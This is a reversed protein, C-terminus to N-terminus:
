PLSKYSVPSVPLSTGQVYLSLEDAFSDAAFASALLGRAYHRDPDDRPVPEAAVAHRRNAPSKNGSEAMKKIKYDNLSIM